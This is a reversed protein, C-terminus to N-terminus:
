TIRSKQVSAEISGGKASGMRIAPKADKLHIM